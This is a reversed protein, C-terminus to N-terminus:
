ILLYWYKKFKKYWMVGTKHPSSFVSLTLLKRLIAFIIWSYISEKLFLTEPSEKIFDPNFKEDWGCDLLFSFDDV